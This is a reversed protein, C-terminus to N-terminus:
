GSLYKAVDVLEFDWSCEIAHRLIPLHGSGIIMLIRDNPSDSIRKLNSFIRLNRNYWWGTIYDVVAYNGPPGDLWSLYGGHGFIVTEPSNMRLLHERLTEKMLLADNERLLEMFRGMRGGSIVQYLINEVEEESREQGPMGLIKACEAALQELSDYQRGGEDIPYLRIHGHRDAIRFGLQYVESRPLEFTGDRYAQYEENLEAERQLRREVAVKTPEFDALLDVLERVEAQREDSLIDIKDKPKHADLGPYNFHFTGLLLVQAQRHIGLRELPSSTAVSGKGNDKM